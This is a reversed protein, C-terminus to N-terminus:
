IKNQKEKYNKLITEYLEKSIGKAEYLTSIFPLFNDDITEQLQKTISLVIEKPPSLINGCLFAIEKKYEKASEIWLKVDERSIKLPSVWEGKIYDVYLSQERSELYERNLTEFSKGLEKFFKIDLTKKVKYKEESQRQIFALFLAFYDFKTYHKKIDKKLEETEYVEIRSLAYMYAKSTEEIASFALFRAHGYSENEFLIQADKILRNINLFCLEVGKKLQEDTIKLPTVM